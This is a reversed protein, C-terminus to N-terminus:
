EAYASLISRYLPSVMALGRRAAAVNDFMAMGVDNALGAEGFYKAEEGRASIMRQAIEVAHDEAQAYGFGFAAAEETQATIHPIGFTDRRIVVNRALSDPSPMLPEHPHCASAAAVTVLVLLLYRRM